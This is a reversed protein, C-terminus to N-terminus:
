QAEALEPDQTLETGDDFGEYATRAAGFRMQTELARYLPAHAIDCEWVQVRCCPFSATYYKCIRVDVIQTDDRWVVRNCADFVLKCLNDADPKTTHFLKAMLSGPSIRALSKVRKSQPWDFAFDLRVRLPGELPRTHGAQKMAFYAQDRVGGKAKENESPDYQQAFAEGGAKPKVIRTRHRKLSQPEGAVTFQLIPDTM